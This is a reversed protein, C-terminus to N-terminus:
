IHIQQRNVTLLRSPVSWASRKQWIVDRGNGDVTSVLAGGDVLLKTAEWIGTSRFSTFAYLWTWGGLVSSSGLRDIIIRFFHLFVKDSTTSSEGGEHALMMDLMTAIGEVYLLAFINFDRHVTANRNIRSVEAFDIRVVGPRM